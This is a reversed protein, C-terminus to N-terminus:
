CQGMKNKKGFQVFLKDLIMSNCATPDHVAITMQLHTESLPVSPNNTDRAKSQSKDKSNLDHNLVLM